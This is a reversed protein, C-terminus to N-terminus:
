CRAGAKDALLPNRQVSEERWLRLNELQAESKLNTVVSGRDSRVPLQEEVPKASTESSFVSFDGGLVDFARSQIRRTNTSM